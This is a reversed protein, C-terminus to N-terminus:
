SKQEHSSPVVWVKVETDLGQALQIKVTYLGLEKLPGELKIMDPTVDFKDRGLADSIEPAGVSGYLHGEDNANAELTISHRQLAEGVKALEARQAEVLAALKKQHKEALKLNHPTAATAFGHPLLYNRAYGPKVEVIEGQRGLSPVDRTLLLQFDGTPGKLISHRKRPM